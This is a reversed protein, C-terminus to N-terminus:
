GAWLCVVAFVWTYVWEDGHETESEGEDDERDDGGLLGVKVKLTTKLGLDPGLSCLNLLM